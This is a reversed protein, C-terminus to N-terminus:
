QLGRMKHSASWGDPNRKQITSALCKMTKYSYNAFLYSFQKIEAVVRSM